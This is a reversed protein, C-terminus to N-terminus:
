LPTVEHRDTSAPVRTDAVDNEIAVGGETSANAVTHISDFLRAPRRGPRRLSKTSSATSKEDSTTPGGHIETGRAPDTDEPQLHAPM